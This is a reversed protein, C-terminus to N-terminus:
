NDHKSNLFLSIGASIGHLDKQYDSDYQPAWPYRAEYISRKYDYAVFLDMNKWRYGISVCGYLKSFSRAIAGETFSQGGETGIYSAFSKKAHANYGLKADLFLGKDYGLAYWRLDGYLPFMFAHDVMDLYIVQVGVGAYVDSLLFTGYNIGAMGNFIVSSVDDVILTRGIGIDLRIEKDKGSPLLLSQASAQLGLALLIILM